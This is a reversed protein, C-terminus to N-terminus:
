VPVPKYLVKPKWANPMVGIDIALMEDMRESVGLSDYLQKTKTLQELENEWQFKSRFHYIGDRFVLEVGEMPYGEPLLINGQITAELIRRVNQEGIRLLQLQEQLAAIRNNVYIDRLDKQVQSVRQRPSGCRIYREATFIENPIQMDNVTYRPPFDSSQRGHHLDLLGETYLGIRRLTEPTMYVGNSFTVGREELARLVVM